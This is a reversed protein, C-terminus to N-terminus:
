FSDIMEMRLVSCVLLVNRQFEFMEELGWLM